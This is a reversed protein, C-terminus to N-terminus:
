SESCKLPFSKQTLSTLPGDLQSKQKWVKLCSKERRKKWRRPIQCCDFLMAFGFSKRGSYINEYLVQKVTIVLFSSIWDLIKRTQFNWLFYYKVAIRFCSEYVFSSFLVLIVIHIWNEKVFINPLKLLLSWCQLHFDHLFFFQNKQTLTHLSHFFSTHPPICAQLHDLPQSACM